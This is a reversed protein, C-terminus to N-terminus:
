KEDSFLDAEDAFAQQIKALKDAKKSLGTLDIGNEIAYAELQKETMKEVDIDPPGSERYPTASVLIFRGTAVLTDAKERSDVEIFPRSASATVGKGTYSRGKTLKLKYM